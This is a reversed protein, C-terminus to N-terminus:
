SESVVAYRKNRHKPQEIEDLMAIAFDAYSTYAEGKSNVLAVDSGTAYRGTRKGQADFLGCPSLYVWNLDSTSQLEELNKRMQLATDLFQAPFGASEHIRESRSEDTFLSGGSGVVALRTNTHGKLADILVYGATAHQEETGFTANFANVVVDYPTLDAATLEFIDKEVVDIASDQPLKEPSRVIATVKHGRDLAEQMILRGSQGTAGIIAINM